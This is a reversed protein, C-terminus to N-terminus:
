PTTQSSIVLQSLVKQIVVFEDPANALAKPDAVEIVKNLVEVAQSLQQGSVSLKSDVQWKQLKGSSPKFLGELRDSLTRALETSIGVAKLKETLASATDFGPNTFLSLLIQQSETSINQAFSNTQMASAIKNAQQAVTFAVDYTVFDAIAKAKPLGAGVIASGDGFTNGGLDEQAVGGGNVQAQLSPCLYSTILFTLGFLISRVGLRFISSRSISAM